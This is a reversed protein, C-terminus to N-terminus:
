VTDSSGIGSNGAADTFAGDAVSVTASGEFGDDATFTATYHTADVMAFDSITGHTATIDAATFGVPAESFNFTVVSSDDGDSLSADVVNVAVTPNKTDIG